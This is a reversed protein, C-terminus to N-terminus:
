ASNEIPSKELPIHFLSEMPTTSWNKCNEPFNLGMIHGLVSTVRLKFNANM